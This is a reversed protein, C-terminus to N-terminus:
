DAGPLWREGGGREVTVVLPEPSPTPEPAPEVLAQKHEVVERQEDLPHGCAGRDVGELELPTGSRLHMRLRAPFTMRMAETDIGAIGRGHGSALIRRLRQRVDRREALRRLETWGLGATGLGVERARALVRPWAKLPVDRVSAGAEATGRLTETTLEWDHRVRVRAALEGVEEAHAGLWEATLEHHTLRGAVLAIAVSRAASFNVGIPTLGAGAGLEEMAVTLLGADIDIAAIDAPDVEASLAADVAAQLYACGPHSKFALTDTLWVDGLAGLMSPRPVFSFHTLLGRRDEIVDLPGTVGEAALLAARAGQVAPEAATLLKTPPGMFGPWLGYPPQYLAIALAQAIREGDLGLGIGAAVAASGCHISSWFQGNHPGVFLAAGLRGAIENGAIQALLAREGDSSFARATWVASHGTHGMFLYDDWDHAISAAAGAYIEGLPGDPAVAAFPAAAEGGARGAALVSATQLRARAIVRDPVDASALGGAWRGMEECITVVNVTHRAASYKVDTIV